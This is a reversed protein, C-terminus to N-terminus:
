ARPVDFLDPVLGFILYAAGLLHVAWARWQYQVLVASLGLLSLAAYLGFLHFVWRPGSGPGPAM